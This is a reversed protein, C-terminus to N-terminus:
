THGFSGVRDLRYLLIPLDLGGSYICMLMHVLDYKLGLRFLLRHTVYVHISDFNFLVM